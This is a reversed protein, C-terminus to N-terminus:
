SPGFSGDHLNAYWVAQSTSVVLLDLDGDGDLDGLPGSATNGQSTITPGQMFTGDGNSRWPRWESTNLHQDHVLLDERVDGDLDIRDASDVGALVLTPPGPPGLTGDGPIDHVVVQSGFYHWGVLEDHGDGDVDALALPLVLDAVQTDLHPLGDA